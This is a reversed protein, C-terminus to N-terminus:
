RRSRRKVARRVSGRARRAAEPSARPPMVTAVVAADWALARAALGALDALRMRGLAARRRPAAGATGLAEASALAAALRDGAPERDRQRLARVARVLEDGTPGSSKLRDIEARLAAAAGATRDARCAIAVAIFGGRAGEISMASVRHVLRRELRLKAGLRAALVEALVDLGARDPHDVAVGPFGIAVASVEGPLFGFLQREGSPAPPSGGPAAAAPGGARAAGFAQRAAAVVADPDVDGVVAIAMAGAPYAAAFHAAVAGRDLAALSEDTGLPDAGYPGDAFLAGVLLQWASEEASRERAAREVLLRRRARDVAAAAFRPALACDAMLALGARWSSLPWEAALEISDRGAVGWMAAETRELASAVETGDRKGCGATWSESLLRTLGATAARELGTGGPWVARASVVARTTDRVVVIRVGGPLEARVA